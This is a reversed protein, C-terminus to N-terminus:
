HYKMIMKPNIFIKGHGHVSMSAHLPVHECCTVKEYNAPHEGFTNKQFLVPIDANPTNADLGLTSLYSKLQQNTAPLSLLVQKCYTKLDKTVIGSYRFKLLSNTKYIALGGFASHVPIWEEGSLTFLSGPLEDWFQDGLNEPGFPHHQDRFAYRDYYLGNSFTGNAAVCDWESPVELTNLIEEIPWPTVFDLDVM